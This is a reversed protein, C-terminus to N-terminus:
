TSGTQFPASDDSAVQRLPNKEPTFNMKEYTFKERAKRRIAPGFDLDFQIM